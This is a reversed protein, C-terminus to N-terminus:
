LIFCVEWKSDRIKLKSDLFSGESSEYYDLYNLYLTKVIGQSRVVIEIRWDCNTYKAGPKTLYAHLNMYDYLLM